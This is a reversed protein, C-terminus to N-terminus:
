RGGFEAALYNIQAQTREFLDAGDSGWLQVLNDWGSGRAPPAVAAPIRWQGPAIGPVVNPITIGPGTPVGGAPANPNVPPGVIPQPTGPPLQAPGTPATIGLSAAVAPIRQYALSGAEPYPLYYRTTLSEGAAYCTDWAEWDAGNGSISVAYEANVAADYLESPDQGTEIAHTALIQWLGIAGASSLAHADGDCSEALAVAVAVVVANVDGGANTWLQAIQPTSYYAPSMGPATCEGAM